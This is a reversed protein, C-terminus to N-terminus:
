PDITISATVFDTLPVQAGLSYVARTARSYAVCSGNNEYVAGTYLAGVEYVQTNYTCSGAPPTIYKRAYKPVPPATCSSGGTTQEVLDITQTCGTDKYLTRIYGGYVVCRITGDPLKTPYCDAGKQGDYLAYSRYSLGESDTFHVLQIRQGATGITRTVPALSLESGMKYFDDGTSPTQAVCSAGNYYYLPSGTTLAGVSYYHPATGPCANNAYYVAYKPQACQKSIALKPTTCTSNEEYSVYRSSPSCSGTSSGGYVSPYCGTGLASDHVEAQRRMGDASEYHRLALRGPGIPSGLTVEVLDSPLVEAGISYYDYSTSTTYPGNCSGDSGKSYYQGVAIKTGRAYLHAPMSDCPTFSYEMAYPPPAVTCSPDKYV